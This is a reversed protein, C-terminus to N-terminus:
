VGNTRKLKFKTHFSLNGLEIPGLLPPAFGTHLLVDKISNSKKKRVIKLELKTKNVMMKQKTETQRRKEVVSSCFVKDM